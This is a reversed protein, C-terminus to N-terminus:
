LEYNVFSNWEDIAEQAADQHKRAADNQEDIFEQICYKYTEVESQFSDIQYQDTFQYPKYPKSCSHSPTFMDAYSASVTISLALALLTKRM